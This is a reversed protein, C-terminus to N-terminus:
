KISATGQQPVIREVSAKLAALEKQVASVQAVTTKLATNEAELKEIRKTLEQTASVNLMSIAEYDVARFDNVQKGYVFYKNEPKDTTFSFNNVTAANVTADIMLNAENYM